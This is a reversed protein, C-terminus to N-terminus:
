LDFEVEQLNAKEKEISVSYDLERIQADRNNLASEILVLFRDKMLEITERKFLKTRYQLTLLM